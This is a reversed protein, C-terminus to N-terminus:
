PLRFESDYDDPVPMQHTLQVERHERSSELLALCVELTAMGWRGDHYVPKGLVASDYLEMLEVRRGVVGQVQDLNIERRGDDGYVTLGYASHRIDGRECSVIVMGLDSPLWERAQRQRFIQEEARGGIRLDLKEQDENRTGAGLQKRITVREEANYRQKDEGWPVLEHTIFYGYGDHVISAVAGDEFEMLASYYGPIPREEQWQGVVARVSRLMGGGLLRVTDIQHPGQRYPIGGGQNLDLEEATRPRLLWDTFAWINIARLKGLEGSQIIKRMARIPTSFSMTHGALLKVGNKDAAEVMQEAQKLSIAMPKEVVVHKGHNLALITHEAHYMNPTSVWVAEVSPDKCMAEASVYTEAQPYRNHFRELVDRNVDAGAVLEVEPLSEIAPLIEAGGVGIGVIGIRLTKTTTTM